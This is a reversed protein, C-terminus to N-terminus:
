VWEGRTNSIMFHCPLINESVDHKSNNQSTPLMLVVVVIYQTTITHLVSADTTVSIFYLISSRSTVLVRASAFIHVLKLFFIRWPPGHLSWPPLQPVYNFCESGGFFIGHLCNYGFDQLENGALGACFFLYTHISHVVTVCYHLSRSQETAYKIVWSYFVTQIPSCLIFIFCSPFRGRLPALPGTLNPTFGSLSPRDQLLPLGM